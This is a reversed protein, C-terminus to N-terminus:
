ELILESKLLNMLKEMRPSRFLSDAYTYKKGKINHGNMEIHDKADKEFFSFCAGNVVQEDKNRVGVISFNYDSLLEMSTEVEYSTLTECFWSKITEKTYEDYNLIERENNDNYMQVLDDEYGNEDLYTFLEELTEYEEDEWVYVFDSTFNEDIGYERVEHWVTYIPNRTCKTDQTNLENICEKLFEYNEDSVQITKM